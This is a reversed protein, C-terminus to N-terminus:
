FPDPTTNVIPAPAVPPADFRINVGHKTANNKDIYTVPEVWIHVTGCKLLQNPSYTALGLTRACQECIIKTQLSTPVLKAYHKTMDGCKLTFSFTRTAPDGAGTLVADYEGPAFPITVVNADMAAMFDTLDATVPTNVAPNNAIANKITNNNM